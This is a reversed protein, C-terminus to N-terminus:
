RQAGRQARIRHFESVAASVSAAQGTTTNVQRVNAGLVPSAPGDPAGTNGRLAAASREEVRAAEVAEAIRQEVAANAVEGRRGPVNHVKEWVTRVTANPNGRRAEELMADVLAEPNDLEKGFLERHERAVSLLEAQARLNGVLVNGLTERRVFEDTNVAAPTVPAVQGNGPPTTVIGDLYSKADFGVETSARELAQKVRFAETRADEVAKAASKLDGEKAQKWTALAALQDEAERVKTNATELIQQAETQKQNFYRDAEAKRHVRNGLEPVRGFLAKVQGADEPSVGLEAVFADVDFPM